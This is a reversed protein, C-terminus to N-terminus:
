EEPFNPRAGKMVGEWALPITFIIAFGQPLNEAWIRGGHAEVIGKCISLGLGSGTVRDAATVRHFRDFIRELDQEAVKPGRNIVSVQLWEGHNVSAQIHIPSGPPSYKVSNSMLNTLVQEIQFYDVAILPIDDSIDIEIIHEQTQQRMRTLVDAIIENFSNWSKQPKLAGAEIQAMSLLNGVLRNLHDAEEEVVELLEVRASSDWPVAESRLSTVAAKITALPSRLEHSVSSLLSSKFRDSEELVRARTSSQAFRARELALVGQSAFTQLLREDQMSFQESARWIHIEGVLRDTSQLPVIMDPKGPLPLEQLALGKSELFVTIPSGDPGNEVRVEVRRAHVTSLTHEAIAHIIEGEEQLGTLRASLEYLRIAEFERDRAKEQGQRARGVLQSIWVSLGFFVFLALIDQTEHVFLSYYPTTFFYNLGLFALLSALFSPSLGWLAASFGVPLLYFLAVTSSNIQEQFPFLIATTISTM